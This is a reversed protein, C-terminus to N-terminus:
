QNRKPHGYLYHDHERAGDKPLAAFEERPVDRMNDLIFEGISQAGPSAGEPSPLTAESQDAIRLLWEQM